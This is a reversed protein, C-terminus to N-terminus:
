TKAGGMDPYVIGVAKPPQNNQPGNPPITDPQMAKGVELSWELTAPHDGVRIRKDGVEVKLELFQDFAPSKFHQYVTKIIEANKPADTGWARQLEAKADEHVKIELDSRAKDMQGILSSFDKYVSEGIEKPLGKEFAYTKWWDTLEQNIELGDPLKFEYGDANEPRGLAKYFAEKQEPTANEALKPIYDTALKGELETAKGKVILHDKALDSITKYGTFTENERLDSSLQATWAPAANAPPVEGAPLGDGTGKTIQEDAM